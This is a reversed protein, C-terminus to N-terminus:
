LLHRGEELILSKMGGGRLLIKHVQENNRIEEPDGDAIITGQHLVIIREAIGFVLEMDHEVVLISM